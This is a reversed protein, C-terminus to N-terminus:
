KLGRLVPNIGSFLRDKIELSLIFPLVGMPITSIMAELIKLNVYKHYIKLSM